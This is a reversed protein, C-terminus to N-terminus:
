REINKLLSIYIKENEKEEINIEEFIFMIIISPDKNQNWEKSTRLIKNLISNQTSYKLFM